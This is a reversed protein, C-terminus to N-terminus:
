IYIFLYVLSSLACMLDLHILYELQFDENLYMIYNMLFWIVYLLHRDIYVLIM